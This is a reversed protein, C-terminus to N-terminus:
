SIGDRLTLILQLNTLIVSALVSTGARVVLSM